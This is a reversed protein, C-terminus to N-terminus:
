NSEQVQNSFKLNKMHPFKNLYSKAYEEENTITWRGNKHGFTGIYTVEAHKINYTASISSGDKNGFAHGYRRADAPFVGCSLPDLFLMAMNSNFGFGQQRDLTSCALIAGKKVELKASPKLEAGIPMCGTFLFAMLALFVVYLKM